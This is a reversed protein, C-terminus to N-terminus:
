GLRQHGDSLLARSQYDRPHSDTHAPQDGTSRTKGPRPPPTPAPPHPRSPWHATLCLRTRRGTRITRAAVHLLRLRLRKPERAQHCGLALTATLTLLQQGLLVTSLWIGNQALDHLPLNRAGLSKLNASGTRPAPGCGSNSRWSLWSGTPPTPRSCSSGGGPPTPSACRRWTPDNGAPSSGCGPLSVASPRLEGSRSTSLGWKSSGSRPTTV